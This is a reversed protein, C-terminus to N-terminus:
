MAYFFLLRIEARKLTAVNVRAVSILNNKFKEVPSSFSIIGWFFFINM